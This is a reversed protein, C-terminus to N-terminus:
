LSVEFREKWDPRNFLELRGTEVPCGKMTKPDIGIVIENGCEPCVSAYEIHEGEGDLGNMVRVKWHKLDERSEVLYECHCISCTFYIGEPSNSMFGHKMIKM